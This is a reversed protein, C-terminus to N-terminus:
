KKVIEWEEQYMELGEGGKEEGEARGKGGTENDKERIGCEDHKAREVEERRRTSDGKRRSKRNKM